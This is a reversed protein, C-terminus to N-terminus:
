VRVLCPEIVFHRLVLTQTRIDHLEHWYRENEIGGGISDELRAALEVLQSVRQSALESNEQRYL